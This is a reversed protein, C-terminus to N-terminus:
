FKHLVDQAIVINDSILRSPVFSVQNHSILYQLPPQIRSVLIKSIVKYLTCCLSIPRFLSMDQPSAVKPVLTILTHNLGCPIKGSSFVLKVM